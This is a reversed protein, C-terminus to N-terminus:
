HQKSEKFAVKVQATSLGLMPLCYTMSLKFLLNNVNCCCKDLTYKFLIGMFYM